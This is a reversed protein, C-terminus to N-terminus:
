AISSYYCVHMGYNRTYLVINDILEEQKSTIPSTPDVARQTAQLLSTNIDSNRLSKTLTEESPTFPYDTQPDEM